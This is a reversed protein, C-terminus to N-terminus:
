LGSVLVRSISRIYQEARVRVDPGLAVDVPSQPLERAFPVCFLALKEQEPLQDVRVLRSELDNPGAAERAQVIEAAAISM